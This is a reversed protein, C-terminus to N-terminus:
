KPNGSFMGSILQSAASFNPPSLPWLPQATPLRETSLNRTQNLQQKLDIRQRALQLQEEQAAQRQALDRSADDMTRPANADPPCATPMDPGECPIITPTPQVTQALVQMPLSFQAGVTATACLLAIRIPRIRTMSM